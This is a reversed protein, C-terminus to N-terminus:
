GKNHAQMLLAYISKGDGDLILVHHFKPESNPNQLEKRPFITQWKM